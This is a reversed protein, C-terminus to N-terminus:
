FWWPRFLQFSVGDFWIPPYVPERTETSARGLKLIASGEM